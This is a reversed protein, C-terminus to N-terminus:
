RTHSSEGWNFFLIDKASKFRKTCDQLAEEDRHNCNLCSDLANVVIRAGHRFEEYNLSREKTAQLLKIPDNRVNSEHDSRAELKSKM